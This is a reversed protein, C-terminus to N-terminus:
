PEEPNCIQLCVDNSCQSCNGNPCYITPGAGDQDYCVYGMGLQAQCSDKCTSLNCTLKTNDASVQCNWGSQLGTSAQLLPVMTALTEGYGVQINGGNYVAWVKATPSQKINTYICNSGSSCSWTLNIGSSSDKVNAYPCAHQAPSTTIANCVRLTKLLFDTPGPKPISSLQLQPLNITISTPSSADAWASTELGLLLILISMLKIPM